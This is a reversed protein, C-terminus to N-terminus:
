VRRYGLHESQCISVQLWGAAVFACELAASFPAARRPKGERAARRQLGYFDAIGESDAEDTWDLWLKQVRGM